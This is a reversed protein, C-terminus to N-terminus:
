HNQGAFYDAGAIKGLLRHNKLDAFYNKQSASDDAEAKDVTPVLIGYREDASQTNDYVEYGEPWDEARLNKPVNLVLLCAFAALLRPLLNM